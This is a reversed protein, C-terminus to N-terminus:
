LLALVDNLKVLVTDSPLGQAHRENWALRLAEGKHLDRDFIPLTTSYVGAGCGVDSDCTNRDLHYTPLGSVRKRLEDIEFATSLCMNM